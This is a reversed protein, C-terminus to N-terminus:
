FTARYTIDIQRMSVSDPKVEVPLIHGEGDIGNAYFLSDELVFFSYRGPPLEIQFFGFEDSWLTDVLPTHIATFFEPSDGAEVQDLSTLQHIFVKRKVPTITGGSFCDGGPCVVPMFDGEWFWVQGWVGRPITVRYAQSPPYRFGDTDKSNFLDDQCGSLLALIIWVLPLAKGLYM